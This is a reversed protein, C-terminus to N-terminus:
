IYAPGKFTGQVRQKRIIFESQLNEIDITLSQREDELSKKRNSNNQNHSEGNGEVPHFNLGRELQVGLLNTVLADIAQQEHELQQRYTEADKDIKAKQVGVWDNFKSKSVVITNMLSSTFGTQPPFDFEDVTHTEELFPPMTTRVGISFFLFFIFPHSAFATWQLRRKEFAEPERAAQEDAM